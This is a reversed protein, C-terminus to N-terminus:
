VHRNMWSPVGSAAGSSAGPAVNGLIRARLQERTMIGKEELIQVMTWLATAPDLGAHWDASEFPVGWVNEPSELEVGVEYSGNTPASCWVVRCHASRGLHTIGLNIKSGAQHYSRSTFRAGHRDVDKTHTRELCPQGNQDTYSIEVPIAMPLRVTRRSDISVYGLDAPHGIAM